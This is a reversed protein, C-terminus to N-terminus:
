GLPDLERLFVGAHADDPTLNTARSLFAVRRGDASLRGDESWADGIAGDPGSARDVLTTTQGAIHRVFVKTRGINDDPTLNTADSDFAVRWGDASIAVSDGSDGNGAAGRPGRARSVLVTRNTRLGRVLVQLVAQFPRSGSTTGDFAVNRGDASISPDNAGSAVLTTTNGRLDRVLVERDDERARPALNTPESLCLGRLERRGLDAGFSEGNGMAGDIGTAHSALVTTGIVRDHVYVRPGSGGEADPERCEVAM